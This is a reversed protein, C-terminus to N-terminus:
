APYCNGCLVSVVNTYFLNSMVLSHANLRLCCLLLLPGVSCCLYIHAHGCVCQKGEVCCAFM